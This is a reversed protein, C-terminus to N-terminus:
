GFGSSMQSSCKMQTWIGIESYAPQMPQPKKEEEKSQQSATLFFLLLSFVLSFVLCSFFCSFLSLLFSLLSCILSFKTLLHFYWVLSMTKLNRKMKMQVAFCKPFVLCAVHNKPKKKRRWKFVAVNQTCNQLLAFLNESLKWVKNKCKFWECRYVNPWWILFGILAHQVVSDMNNAFIALIAFQLFQLGFTWFSSRSLRLALKRWNKM